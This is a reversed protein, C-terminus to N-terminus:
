KAIEQKKKDNDQLKKSKMNERFRKDFEEDKRLEKILARLISRLDRTDTWKTIKGKYELECKIM